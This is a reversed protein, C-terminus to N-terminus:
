HHRGPRDSVGAPLCARADLLEQLTRTSLRTPDISVTSSVEIPAGNPGTAEIRVPAELGLLKARREMIKLVRDVAALEGKAARPYIKQLLGDLRLVEEALLDDSAASLQARASEIASSVLKHAAQKSIGLKEGIREFPWGARRLDIAAERNKLGRLTAPSTKTRTSM